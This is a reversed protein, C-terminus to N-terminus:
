RYMAHTAGNPNQWYGDSYADRWRDTAYPHFEHNWDGEAFRLQIHTDGWRSTGSRLLIRTTSMYDVIQDQSLGSHAEAPDPCNNQINAIESQELDGESPRNLEDEVSPPEFATTM